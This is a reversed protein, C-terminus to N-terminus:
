LKSCSKRFSPRIVIIIFVTITIFSFHSSSSLSFLSFFFTALLFLSSVVHPLILLFFPFLCFLCYSYAFLLPFYSSLISTFLIFLLGCRLHRHVTLLISLLSLLPILIFSFSYLEYGVVFFPGLVLRLRIFFSLRACLAHKHGPCFFFLIIRKIYYGSQM